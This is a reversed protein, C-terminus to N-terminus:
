VDMDDVPVAETTSATSSSAVSNNRSRTPQKEVFDDDDESVVSAETLDDHNRAEAEALDKYHTRFFQVLFYVMASVLLATTCLFGFYHKGDNEEQASASMDDRLLM